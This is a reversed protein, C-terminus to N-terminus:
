KKTFTRQFLAVVGWYMINVLWVGAMVLVGILLMGEATSKKSM